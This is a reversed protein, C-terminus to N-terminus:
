NELLQFCRLYHYNTKNFDNRNGSGMDLVWSADSYNESSSWYYDDTKFEDGGNAVLAKNIKERNLYVVTLEDISPLQRKKDKAHKMASKWDMQEPADHLDCWIQKGCLEGCYVGKSPDYAGVELNHTQGDLEGTYFVTQHKIEEGSLIAKEFDEKTQLIM